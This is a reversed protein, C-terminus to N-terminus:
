WDLKSEQPERAWEFVGGREIFAQEDFGAYNLGDEVGVDLISKGPAKGGGSCDLFRTYFIQV